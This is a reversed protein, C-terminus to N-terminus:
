ESGEVVQMSWPLRYARAMENQRESEEDAKEREEFREMLEAAGGTTIKILLFPKEQTM